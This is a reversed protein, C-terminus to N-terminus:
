ALIKVADKGTCHVVEIFVAFDENRTVNHLTANGPSDLPGTIMDSIDLACRERIEVISFGQRTEIGVLANTMNMYRVYGEM